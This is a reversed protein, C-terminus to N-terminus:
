NKTFRRVVAGFRREFTERLDPKEAVAAAVRSRIQEDERYIALATVADGATTTDRDTILGLLFQLAPEQRILAIGLLLASRFDGSAGKEWRKRLTEFAALARSGGLAMAAAEPIAAEASDLFGAVFSLSKQPEMALLAAFCEGIVSPEPDGHLIKLRLLLAGESGEACAIARAAGARAAPEPDVLLPVLEEFVQRYGMCALGMGCAARLEGATDVAGGWTSERQIHRIGALFVEEAPCRMDALAQAMATKAACGKDSKLPEVLFRHFARVLEPELAQLEAEGVIRAAKAAVHNSKGSLARSLQLRAEPTTPDARLENLAAIQAESARGPDQRRSM